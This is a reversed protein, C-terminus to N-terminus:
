HPQAPSRLWAHAEALDRAAAASASLSTARNTKAAAKALSEIAELLADQVTEIDAVHERKAVPLGPAKGFAVVSRRPQSM